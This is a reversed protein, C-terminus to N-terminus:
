FYTYKHYWVIDPNIADNTRVYLFDNTIEIIEYSSSGVYYGMFANDSFNLVTGRSSFNPDPVLSWDVSTPALAVNSIGSTDFEFCADEGAEEGLVGMQHAANFFTRGNNNLQFTLQNNMDLSFTLEDDCLCDSIEDNCKEFPVTSYFSPYYYETPEGFIEIDFELTPGLGLHQAEAAALYWVKSSGRGGTLLDKVEQDDFSSFVEISIATSTAIGGTGSAIATVNYTNVGTLNFRHRIAGSPAVEVNSNDGFNFRYTIAQDASVTFDVFGSGDGYPNNADQGVIEYSLNINSPAIVDGFEQDEDQCNFLLTTIFVALSLNYIRKLNM